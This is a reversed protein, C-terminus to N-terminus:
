PKWNMNIATGCTSVYIAYQKMFPKEWGGFPVYDNFYPQYPLPEAVYWLGLSSGGTYTSAMIQNWNYASAQVGYTVNPNNKCGMMLSEFFAQNTTMNRSFYTTSLMIWLHGNWLSPCNEVLNIANTIQQEGTWASNLNPYFSIGQDLFGATRANTLVDCTYGPYMNADYIMWKFSSNVLCQFRSVSTSSWVDFGYSGIPTGKVCCQINPNVGTYLCYYGSVFTGSCVSSTNQTCVGEGLPTHCKPTTCCLNTGPCLGQTLTGDECCPPTTYQACYGLIGDVTCNYQSGCGQAIVAPLQFLLLISFFLFLM